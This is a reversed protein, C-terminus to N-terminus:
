SSIWGKEYAAIRCKSAFNSLPISYLKMRGGTDFIDGYLGYVLM